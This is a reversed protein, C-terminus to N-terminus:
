GFNPSVSPLSFLPLLLTPSSNLNLINFTLPRQSKFTFITALQFHPRSNLVSTKSPSISKPTMPICLHYDFVIATSQILLQLAHHSPMWACFGSFFLALIVILSFVDLLSWSTDPLHLLHLFLYECSVRRQSELDEEDKLAQSFSWM